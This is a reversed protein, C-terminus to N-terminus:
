RPNEHFNYKDCIIIAEQAHVVDDCFTVFVFDGGVQVDAKVYKALDKEFPELLKMQFDSLTISVKM